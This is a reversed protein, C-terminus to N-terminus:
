GKGPQRSVSQHHTRLQLLASDLLPSPIKLAAARAALDGIIHEAEVPAGHRLDRYLSSTFASGRETLLGLTQAHGAQSVPHGSAEAVQECEAIAQLIQAEGGAALIDGISGRFLCTIVGAAAIFAWKEWLRSVIDDVIDLVIGDVDLTRRIKDPVTEGHLGGVTLSCLPTMQVATADEGLTAVIKVIGGLVQGPFARELLDIHAMGNLLPVISTEPRIGPALTPIIAELAPAKVALIVLDFPDAGDLETVACATHVVDVDPARFRLGDATLQRARRQRILFAVDQGATILRAGLAGGTAGAGVILTRTM